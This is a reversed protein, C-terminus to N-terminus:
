GSSTSTVTSSGPQPRGFTQFLKGYCAESRVHFNAPLDLHAEIRDLIKIKTDTGDLAMSWAVDRVVQLKQSKLAGKLDAFSIGLTGLELRRACVASAADEKENRRKDTTAEKEKCLVNSGRRKRAKRGLGMEFQAKTELCSHPPFFLVAHAAAEDHEKRAKGCQKKHIARLASDNDSSNDDESGSSTSPADASLHSNATPYGDLDPPICATSSSYKALLETLCQFCEARLQSM